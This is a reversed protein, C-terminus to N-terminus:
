WKILKATSIMKQSRVQVFYMGASVNGLDIPIERHLEGNYKRNNRYVEKAKVDTVIVQGQECIGELM